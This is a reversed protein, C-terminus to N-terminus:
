NPFERELADLYVSLADHRRFEPEALKEARELYGTFAGSRTSSKTAEFWNMYDDIKDMREALRARTSKLRVLRARVGQIRHKIILEVIEQYEAVIPRMVPHATTALQMLQQDFQHLQRAQVASLKSAMLQELSASKDAAKKSPVTQDLLAKLRRETEAFTLLEYDRGSGIAAVRFKWVRDFDAAAIAPFHARLDLLPDNSAHYLNEIYAALFSPGTSGDILWQLLALSYARYLLRAPSDLLAPQQRLFQELPMVNNSAILPSLADVLPARDQGPAAALVGEVLWEPPEVYVSGAPLDPQRRYIMELLIARLLERQIAVVDVDARVTLDLQLKLGSGTQSFYRAVSPVDPVNAQPFQLNLIIPTKWEERRQLINLLNKKTKEALDCIAGRLPTDAGYAIFQRSTSVSRELPAALLGANILVLFFLTRFLSHSAFRMTRNITDMKREGAPGPSASFSRNGGGPRLFLFKEVFHTNLEYGPVPKHM